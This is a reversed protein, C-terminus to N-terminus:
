SRNTLSAIQQDYALVSQRRHRGFIEATMGAPIEAILKKKYNKM